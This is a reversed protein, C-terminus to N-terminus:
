WGMPFYGDYSGTGGASAVWTNTALDYTLVDGDNPSPVDVDTLDDLAGVTSPIYEWVKTVDNYAIYDSM